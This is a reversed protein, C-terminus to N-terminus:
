ILKSILFQIINVKKGIISATCEFVSEIKYKGTRKDFTQYKRFLFGLWPLGSSLKTGNVIRFDTTRVNQCKCHRERDLALNPVSPKFQFVIFLVTIFVTVILFLSLIKKM